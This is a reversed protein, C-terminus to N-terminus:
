NIKSCKQNEFELDKIAQRICYGSWGIISDFSIQAIIDYVKGNDCIKLGYRHEIVAKPKTNIEDIINNYNKITEIHTDIINTM